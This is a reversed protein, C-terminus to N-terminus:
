ISEATKYIMVEEFEETQFLHHYGSGVAVSDVEITSTMIGGSDASFDVTATDVLTMSETFIMLPVNSKGGLDMFGNKFPAVFNFGPVINNSEFDDYRQVGGSSSFGPQGSVNQNTNTNWSTQAHVTTGDSDYVTARHSTGDSEIELWYTTGVTLTCSTSSITTLGFLVGNSYSAYLIGGSVWGLVSRNNGSTYRTHVQPTNSTAMTFKARVTGNYIADAETSYCINQIYNGVTDNEAANSVREWNAPTIETWNDAISAQDSGNFDETYLAM